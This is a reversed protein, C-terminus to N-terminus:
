PDALWGTGLAMGSSSLRAGVPRHEIGTHWLQRDVSGHVPRRSAAREAQKTAQEWGGAARTCPEGQLVRM